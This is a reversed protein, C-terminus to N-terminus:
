IWAPIQHLCGVSLPIQTVVANGSTGLVSKIKLNQKIWKFFNEIQWRQKYIGAISAAALKFNKTIFRYTKGTSEDLFEILRLESPYKRASQYGTFWVTEDWGVGLRENAGPATRSARNQM